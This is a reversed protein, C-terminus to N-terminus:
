SGRPGGPVGGAPPRRPRGRRRRCERGPPLPRRSSLRVARHSNLEARAQLLERRSQGAGPARPRRAGTRGPLRLRRQQPLRGAQRAVYPSLSPSRRSHHAFLNHLISVNGSGPYASLLGFNHGAGKAHGEVDSEELTSWQLTVESAHIIDVTEDNAWALSLHDLMVRETDPLQVADGDHGTSPRPRFRLFRVVIDHLRAWPEPRSLLRGEITIGPAPATQGAITIRPHKIAVDGRIVGAVDFVVIRPGEAACAEQLSGPGSANLNTVKMVRGGRGGLSTAGFGEAGPFAPLDEGAVRAAAIEVLCSMALLVAVGRAAVTCGHRSAFRRIGAALNGACTEHNKQIRTVSSRQM